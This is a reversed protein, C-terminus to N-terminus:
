MKSIIASFDKKRNHYQQLLTLQNAARVFNHEEYKAGYYRDNRLYDTLFRAAQMLMMFSGSYFLFKREDSSLMDATNDLYGCIVAEFVDDRINIEKLDQVEESAEALYTRMMDGLDSIFYGAMVTDLDVVCLGKGNQDFLVNSIKTDHHTVRKGIIQTARIREFDDLIWSFDDITAILKTARQLRQPNGNAIADRFQDFRFSLDHFQPITDTLREAPFGSFAKAFRGFQFAAEYAQDPNTISSVATSGAVFPTLLFLHDDVEVFGKRDNGALPATFPFEPVRAKRYYDLQRLNDAIVHPKKFVRQNIEQLVYQESGYTVKWTKHILGTGLPAIEFPPVLNYHALARHLEPQM